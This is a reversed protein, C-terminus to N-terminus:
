WLNKLCWKYLWNFYSCQRLWRHPRSISESGLGRQEAMWVSQALTHHWRAPQTLHTALCVPALGWKGVASSKGVKALDKHIFFSWVRCVWGRAHPLSHCRCKISRTASLYATGWSTEWKTGSHASQVKWILSICPQIRLLISSENARDWDGSRKLIFPNWILAM